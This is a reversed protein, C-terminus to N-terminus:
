ILESNSKIDRLVIQRSQIYSLPPEKLLNISYNLGRMMLSCHKKLAQMDVKPAFALKKIDFDQQGSLSQDFKSNSTSFQASDSHKLSRHLSDRTNDTKQQAQPSLESSNKKETDKDVEVTGKSFNSLISVKYLNVNRRSVVPTHYNSKDESKKAPNTPPTTNGAEFSGM